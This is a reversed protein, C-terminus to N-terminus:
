LGSPDDVKGVRLALISFNFVIDSLVSQTKHQLHLRTPCSRLLAQASM